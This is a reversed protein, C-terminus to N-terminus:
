RELLEVGHARQIFERAEAETILGKAALREMKDEFARTLLTVTPAASLLWNRKQADRSNQALADRYAQRRVPDKIAEPSMGSWSPGPGSPVRINTKADPLPQQTYGRLEHIRGAATSIMESRIAPSATEMGTMSARISSEFRPLLRRDFCDTSIQSALPEDAASKLGGGTVIGSSKTSATERGESIPESPVPVALPDLSLAPTDVQIAGARPEVQHPSRVILWAGSVAAVCLLLAVIRPSLAAM